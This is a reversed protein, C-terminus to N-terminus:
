QKKRKRKEKSKVEKVTIQQENRKKEVQYELRGVELELEIVKNNIEGILDSVTGNYITTQIYKFAALQGEAKLLKLFPNM